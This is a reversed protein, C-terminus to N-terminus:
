GTVKELTEFFNPFSVRVCEPSLICCPKESRRALIAAAMALRHDGLPDYRFPQVDKLGGAIHLDDGDIRVSAGALTLLEATKALRDSEKVRLESLGAFHSPGEAFAAAVALIPIEDVLTPVEQSKISTGRLLQGGYIRLTMTPEIFDQNEEAECRVGDTMRRLAAIFGTRTPNDLVEPLTLIGDSRLLGCVAFFAASSPDVPIVFTGSKPQFPGEVLVQERGESESTEIKAGMKALLRETHDRSGSPLNVSSVGDCFLGALILSSKIQASAKDVEHAWPELKRGRIDLPM